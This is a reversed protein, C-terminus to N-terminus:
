LIKCALNPYNLIIISLKPQLGREQDRCAACALEDESQKLWTARECRRNTVRLDGTRCCKSYSHLALGTSLGVYDAWLAWEERYQGTWCSPDSLVFGQCESVLLASGRPMGIGPGLLGPEQPEEAEPAQKQMEKEKQQLQRWHNASKCHQRVFYYM